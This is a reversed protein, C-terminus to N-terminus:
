RDTYFQSELWHDFHYVHDNSLYMDSYLCTVIDMDDFIDYIWGDWTDDNEDPIASEMLFRSEDVILYLTLEELVSHAILSNGAHAITRFRTVACRLAYLFEYDYQMLFQDPLSGELWSVSLEGIHSGKPMSSLSEMDQQINDLLIDSGIAFSAAASKGFTKELYRSWAEHRKYDDLNIVDEEADTKGQDPFSHWNLAKSIGKCKDKRISGGSEYRSWTKTGVGAKAAAEEITLGLENRRQKISIALEPSGKLSQLSM